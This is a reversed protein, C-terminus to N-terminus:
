IPKQSDPAHAHLFTLPVKPNYVDPSLQVYLSRCIAPLYNSVMKALLFALNTSCDFLSLAFTSFAFPVHLFLQTPSFNIGLFIEHAEESIYGKFSSPASFVEWSIVCVCKKERKPTVDELYNSADM